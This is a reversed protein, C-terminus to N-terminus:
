RNRNRRCGECATCFNTFFTCQSYNKRMHYNFREMIYGVNLKPECAKNFENLIALIEDGTKGRRKHYHILGCIAFDREGKRAGTKMVIEEAKCDDGDYRLIGRFADSVPKHMSQQYAAAKIDLQKLLQTIDGGTPRREPIYTSPNKSMNIIDDIDLLPVMKPNMTICYRGTKPHITNPIRIIRSLDGTCVLDLTEFKAGEQMMDVFQKLVTQPYKLEIPEIDIYAHGGKSGSYDIRPEINHRTAWNLLRNIDEFAAAPNAEDDFDLPITDIIASRSNRTTQDFQEYSYVSMFCNTHSNSANFAMIDEVSNAIYYQKKYDCRYPNGLGRPFMNNSFVKLIEKNIELQEKKM